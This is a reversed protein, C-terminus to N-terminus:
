TLKNQIQNWVKILHIRNWKAMEIWETCKMGTCELGNSEFWNWETGNWETGFHQMQYQGWSHASSCGGTSHNSGLLVSM